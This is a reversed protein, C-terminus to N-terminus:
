IDSEEDRHEMEWAEWYDAMAYDESEQEDLIQQPETAEQQISTVDKDVM